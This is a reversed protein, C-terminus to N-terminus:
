NAMYWRNIDLFRESPAIINSLTIGQIKKPVNYIYLARVLFIAPLENNIIEQFRNYDKTRVAPNSTRRAETLLKDAEANAFGSFNLGPDHVLSSHWFPYPDPDAGTNESFLLADFQRPRIYTQELEDPAALVLNVKVGLSEWQSQLIQATKVNLVLSGNLALSFELTKKEGKASTKTRLHTQPDLLWGARDLIDGAETLSNHTATEINSNYGLSGPLIPTFDPAVQNAYAQSIIEDRNTTLWLAQRVAKEAVPSDTLLNFFVAQYQPLSIRYQIYNNSIALFAKSDFAVFGLSTVVRAQYANILDDMDEFFKFTLHNLYPRGQYYNPNPELIISKIKGDPTKQIESVKTKSSDAQMAFSNSGKDVAGFLDKLNISKSASSSPQASQRSIPAQINVKAIEPQNKQTISKISDDIDSIGWGAEMLAGKIVEESIGFGLQAKAYEVIQQQIM